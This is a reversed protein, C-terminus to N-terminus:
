TKWSISIMVEGKFLPLSNLAIDRYCLFPTFFHHPLRISAVERSALLTQLQCRSVLQVYLM